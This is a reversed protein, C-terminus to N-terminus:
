PIGAGYPHLVLRLDELLAGMEVALAAEGIYGELHDGVLGAGLVRGSQPDTLLKAFFGGDEHPDHDGDFPHDLRHVQHPIHRRLAETESLGCWALQPRTLVVRPVARVDFVANGGAAAEAAVRGQRVAAHALLTDGVVDGVAFIDPDSTRQRDDVPLAGEPGVAVATNDLGLRDSAPLRGSAPLVMLDHLEVTEGNHRCTIVAGDGSPAVGIVECGTRIAALRRALSDHLPRVLDEDARALLRPNKELLTVRCGFSALITALELGIHGGGVVTLATPLSERGWLAAIDLIPSGAAVGPLPRPRSGVAIVAKEFRLLSVEAGFLRVQRPGTFSATGRLLLIGREKARAALRRGEDEVQRALAAGARAFDIRPPAFALGLREAAATEDLLRALHLLHRNPLCASHLCNGGPAPGDDVLAVDLGLEAARLAASYGGPGGGIVLLQCRMEMDGMVM